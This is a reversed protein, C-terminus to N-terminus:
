RGETGCYYVVTTQGRGLQGYTGFWRDEVQGVLMLASLVGVTFMIRGGSELRRWGWEVDVSGAM